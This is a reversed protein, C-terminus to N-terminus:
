SSLHSAKPTNTILKKHRSLLAAGLDPDLDPQSEPDTDLNLTKPDVDSFIIINTVSYTELLNKERTLCILWDKGLKKM